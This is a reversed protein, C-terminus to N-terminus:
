AQIMVKRVYGMKVHTDYTFVWELTYIVSPIKIHLFHSVQKSWYHSFPYPNTLPGAYFTGAWKKISNLSKKPHYQLSFTIYTPRSKYWYLFISDSNFRPDDAEGWQVATSCLYYKLLQFSQEVYTPIYIVHSFYFQKWMITISFNHSIYTFV